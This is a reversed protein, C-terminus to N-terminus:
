QNNKQAEEALQKAENLWLEASIVGGNEVDEKTNALDSSILQEIISLTKIVRDKESAHNLLYGIAVQYLFICDQVIGNSHTFSIDACVLKKMQELNQLM